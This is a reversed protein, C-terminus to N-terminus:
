KLRYVVDVNLNMKLASITLLAEVDSSPRGGDRAGSYTRFDSPVLGMSTGLNKLQGTSVGTAQGLKRGVGTAIVRARRQADRLAEITLEEVIKDMESSAFETVFGDLGPIALLGQVLPVWSALTRVNIHATIKLEEGKGDRTRVRKVDGLEIDEPAIDFQRTVAQIAKSREAMATLADEIAPAAVVVEFDISGRDPIVTVYATGGTHVFPYDPMPSASAFLPLGILLLLASLRKM